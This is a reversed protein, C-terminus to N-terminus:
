LDGGFNSIMLECIKGRKEANSNIMRSASVRRIKYSKYLDDFFNDNSDVNKPDSNSLVVKAGKNNIEDIFKALRLQEADDFNDANYSTFMSTQSIPRYPPDLYVFTQSDIFDNSLTFDGCVIKVNQLISSINRLNDEDCIKPNKYAGMPM